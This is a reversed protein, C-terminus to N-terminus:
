QVFYIMDALYVGTTSYIRDYMDITCIDGEWELLNDADQKCSPLECIDYAFETFTNYKDEKILEDYVREFERNLKKNIWLEFINEPVFEYCLVTGTEDDINGDEWVTYIEEEEFQDYGSEEIEFKLEENLEKGLVSVNKM